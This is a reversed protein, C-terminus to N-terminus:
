WGTEPILVRVITGKGPAGRIILAGGLLLARERMGGIGRGNGRVELVVDGDECGSTLTEQLMRLIATTREADVVTDGNPLDLRRGVGTRAEFRRAASEVAQTFTVRRKPDLTTYSSLIAILGPLGVRGNHYYGTLALEAFAM